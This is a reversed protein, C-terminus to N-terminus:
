IEKLSYAIKYVDGAGMTLILFDPNNYNEIIYEVVDSPTRQFTTKLRPQSFLKTLEGDSPIKSNKERSSTFIPLIILETVGQFSNSFESALVITRSVTHPQFVTIIKKDPFASLLAQLSKKVEEPHHAYDDFILAGKKTQGVRELRRKTGQFFPVIEQIKSIPIGLEILVAIAGTANKANHYGPISLQFEGLRVGGVELTFTGSLGAQKYHSIIYDNSSGTGFTKTNRITHNKMVQRINEDDGNIILLANKDLKGIFASYAQRISEIDKYVDPHDFDINNILLVQPTQYLFKPTKDVMMDSVYEDAEAIFYDGQGYHGAAGIPFLESTGITYSPDFGLRELWTALLAAITTKGHAGAVSIGQMNSRHFLRGDMFLGVAQGHTIVPLALSRAFVCEPNNFGNHAATTIVLIEEPRWGKLFDKINEGTFGPLIYIGKEKLIKDTIFEEGVDSGRVVFGAEKAILALSAMGVGKIGVFYIKRIESLNLEELKAIIKGQM